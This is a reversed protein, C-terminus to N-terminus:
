FAISESFHLMIWTASIKTVLDPKSTSQTVHMGTLYSLSSIATYQADKFFLRFRIFYRLSIMAQKPGYHAKM